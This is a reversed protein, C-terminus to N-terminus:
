PAPREDNGTLFGHRCRILPLVFQKLSCFTLTIKVWRGSASYPDDCMIISEIRGAFSEIFCFRWKITWERAAYQIGRKM